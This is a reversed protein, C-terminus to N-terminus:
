GCQKCQGNLMVTFHSFRNVFKSCKRKCILSGLFAKNLCCEFFGSGDDFSFVGVICVCGLVSLEVAQSSLWICVWVHYEKHM